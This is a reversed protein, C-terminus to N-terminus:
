VVKSLDGIGDIIGDSSEKFYTEDLSALPDLSDQLKVAAEAEIPTDSLSDFGKFDPSISMLALEIDKKAAGTDMVWAKIIRALDMSLKAWKTAEKSGESANGSFLAEKSKFTCLTFMEQLGEVPNVVIAKGLRWAIFDLGQSLAWVKMGKEEPNETQEILELLSLKDCAIVNFFMDRYMSLVDIPVEIIDYIKALDKSAIMCAEVYCRKTDSLYIARAKLYLARTEKDEDKDSLIRDVLPDVGATKSKILLYRAHVHDM